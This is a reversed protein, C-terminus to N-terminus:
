KPRRFLTLACLFSLKLAPVRFGFNARVEKEHRSVVFEASPTNNRLCRYM